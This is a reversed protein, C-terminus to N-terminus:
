ECEGVLGVAACEECWIIFVPYLYNCYAKKFGSHTHTHTHHSVSFTCQLIM